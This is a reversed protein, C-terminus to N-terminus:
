FKHNYGIRIVQTENYEKSSYVFGKGNIEKQIIMTNLLDTANMFVEGIGKQIVKKIGVDISFRSKIKGQPILDPALYVATLQADLNKPFHFFNNWKINGSFITEKEATFTNQVPYKNQITFAAIENKYANMNLNFTYLKSTEHSLMM